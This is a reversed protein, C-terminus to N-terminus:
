DFYEPLALDVDELSLITMEEHFPKLRHGNVKFLKWTDISKNEPMLKLRSNYLLIKQGVEFSKRLIMNGHFMKSKEKYLSSNEYADLRLEELEQLQLKREEGAKKMEM